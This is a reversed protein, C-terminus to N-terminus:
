QAKEETGIALLGIGFSEFSMPAPRGYLAEMDEYASRLTKMYTEARFMDYAEEFAESSVIQEFAEDGMDERMLLHMGSTDFTREQFIRALRHSDIKDLKDFWLNLNRVALKRVADNQLKAMMSFIDRM